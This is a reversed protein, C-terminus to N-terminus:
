ELFYRPPFNVADGTLIKRIERRGLEEIQKIAM